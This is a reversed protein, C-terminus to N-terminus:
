QFSEDSIFTKGLLIKRNNPPMYPPLPSKVLELRARDAGTKALLDYAAQASTNVKDASAAFNQFPGPDLSKCGTITLVALALGLLQIHRNFPHKTKQNKM